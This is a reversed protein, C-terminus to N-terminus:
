QIPERFQNISDVGPRGAGGNEVRGVQSHVVGAGFLVKRALGNLNATATIHVGKLLKGPDHLPGNKVEGRPAFKSGLPSTTGQPPSTIGQPSNETSGEIRSFQLTHEGRPTFSPTFM